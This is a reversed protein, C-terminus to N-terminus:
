DRRTASANDELIARPCHQATIGNGNLYGGSGITNSNDAPDYDNRSNEFEIGSVKLGDHWKLGIGVAFKDGGPNGFRLNEIGVDRMVTMPGVRANESVNFSHEIARDSVLDDGDIAIVRFMQAHVAAYSNPSTSIVADSTLLAYGGITFAGVDESAVPVKYDKRGIDATLPYCTAPEVGESQIMVQTTSLPRLRGHGDNILRVGSPIILTGNTYVDGSMVASHLGDRLGKEIEIGYRIRATNAVWVLFAMLMTSIAQLLVPQVAMFVDNFLTNM